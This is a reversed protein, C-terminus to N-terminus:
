KGKAWRAKQAASIRARGAASMKRKKPTKTIASESVTAKLPPRGPGRKATVNEADTLLAKVKELQAIQEDIASVIQDNNL